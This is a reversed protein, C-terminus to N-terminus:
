KLQTWRSKSKPQKSEDLFDSYCTIQNGFNVKQARFFCFRMQTNGQPIVTFHIENSLLLSFLIQPPPPPFRCYIISLLMFNKCLAHWFYRTKKEGTELEVNFLFIQNICLVGWLSLRLLLMWNRERKHKAVHEKGQLKFETHEPTAKHRSKLRRGGCEGVRIRM